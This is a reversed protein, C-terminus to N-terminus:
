VMTKVVYFSQVVTTFFFILISRQDMPSERLRVFPYWRSALGVLRDDALCYILFFLILLLIGAIIWETM